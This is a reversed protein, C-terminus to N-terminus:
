DEWGEEEEDEGGADVRKDEKAERIVEELPDENSKEIEDKKPQAKLYQPPKTRLFNFSKSWDKPEDGFSFPKNSGKSDSLFDMPKDWSSKDFASKFDTQGNTRVDDSFRYTDDATNSKNGFDNVKASSFTDLNKNIM